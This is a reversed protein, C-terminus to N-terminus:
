GRMATLFARFIVSRLALSSSIMMLCMHPAVRAGGRKDSLAVTMNGDMMVSGTLSDSAVSFSVNDNTLVMKDGDQKGYQRVITKIRALENANLSDAIDTTAQKADAKETKETTPQNSQDDGSNLMSFGFIVVGMLLLGLITNKDM